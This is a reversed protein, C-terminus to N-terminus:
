LHRISFQTLHSRQSFRIWNINSTRVGALELPCKGNKHKNKKRCDTFKKFRYWTILMKMTAWCTDHCKYGDARNIKEDLHSIVGEGVNNTRPMGPYFHTWNMGDEHEALIAHPIDQSYSDVGVMLCESKRGGPITDGDVVLYGCGLSSSLIVQMPSKCQFGMRIIRDYVTMPRMSVLPCRKYTM